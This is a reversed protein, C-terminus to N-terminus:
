STTDETEGSEGGIKRRSLGYWQEERIAARDHGNMVRRLARSHRKTATVIRWLAYALAVIVLGHVALLQIEASM